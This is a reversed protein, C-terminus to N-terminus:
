LTSFIKGLDNVTKKKNHNINRFYKDMESYIYMYCYKAPHCFISDSTCFVLKEINFVVIIHM